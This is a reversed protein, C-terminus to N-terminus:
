TSKECKFIFVSTGMNDVREKDDRFSQSQCCNLNLNNKNNNKLLSFTPVYKM